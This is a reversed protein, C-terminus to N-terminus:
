NLLKASVATKGHVVSYHVPHIMQVYPIRSTYAKLNKLLVFDDIGFNLLMILSVLLLKTEGTYQM